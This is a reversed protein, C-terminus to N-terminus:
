TESITKVQHLREFGGKAKERLKRNARGYGQNIRISARTLHRNVEFLMEQIAKGSHGQLEWYQSSVFVAFAKQVENFESRIKELDKM